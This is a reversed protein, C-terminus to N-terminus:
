YAPADTDRAVRANRGWGQAAAAEGATANCGFPAAHSLPETSQDLAGAPVCQVTVEVLM